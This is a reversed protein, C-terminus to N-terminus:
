HSRFFTRMLARPSSIIFSTTCEIDNKKWEIWSRNTLEKDLLVANDQFKQNSGDFSKQIILAKETEGIFQGLIMDNIVLLDGYKPM